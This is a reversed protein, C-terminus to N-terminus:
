LAFMTKFLKEALEAVPYKFLMLPVLPAVAAVAFITHLRLSAPVLRMTTAINLSNGLDALSQIDATGLLEDTQPGARGLWKREFDMVYSSTLDNYVDIGNVRCLWLKPYFICLPGLFLVADVALIVLVSPYISAFAGADAVFSEALAAAAAASIAFILFAFEAQVVELYGLGGVRDPHIPVLCLRLRALRWLFYSWLALRWAWRLALFRFLPLCVVWYWLATLTVPEATRHYAMTSGPLSLAPTLLSMGVALLLCIADPVWSDRWRAIRTMEIDLQPLEASPVLRSRVIGDVFARVRPDLMTECVFFLPIVLLMRVHGGLVALSLVRESVNEFYAILVLVTWPAAGLAIGLAITNTGGRVLGARTGWRHLTGGLLSFDTHIQADSSGDGIVSSRGDAKM